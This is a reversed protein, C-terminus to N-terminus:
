GLSLAIAFALLLGACWLGLLAGWAVISPSPVGSLRRFRKLSMAAFGLTAIAAGLFGGAAITIWLRDSDLPSPQFGGMLSLGLFAQAGTGALCASSTGILLRLARQRVEERQVYSVGEPPKQM